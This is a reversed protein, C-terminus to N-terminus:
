RLRIATFNGQDQISPDHALCAHSNTYTDIHGQTGRFDGSCAPCNDQVTKIAKSANASDVMLVQDSCALAGPSSRPNPSVAIATPTTQNFESLCAGDVKPVLYYANTGNPLASDPLDCADNVAWTKLIEGNANVGTGNINVQSMFTPNLYETKWTCTNGSYSYAVVAPSTSPGCQAEYTTNYTSFRYDGLVNFSLPLNLSLDDWVAVFSGYQGIPLANRQVSDTFSTGAQANAHSPLSVSQGAGNIMSSLNATKTQGSLSVKLTGAMLDLTVNIGPPDSSRSWNVTGSNGGEGSGLFGSSGNGPSIAVQAVSCGSITVNETAQTSTIPYGCADYPPSTATLTFFGPGNMQGQITGSFSGCGAEYTTVSGVVSFGEQNLSYTNHLSTNDTWVGSIDNCNKVSGSVVSPPIPIPAPTPNFDPPVSGSTVETSLIFNAVQNAAINSFSGSNPTFTSNSRTPTVTYSGGAAVGFSYSGNADTTTAGATAGSLTITVGPLPSAGASVQGSVSYIQMLDLDYWGTGDFVLENTHQRTDEYYIHSSNDASVFYSSLGTGNAALASLGSAATVDQNTWGQGDFFLQYVHQNEGVYYVHSSVDAAVFYSTDGDGTAALAGNSIATLDQTVWEQGTFFLQYVHQNQGIYYVHSTESVDVFYSTIGTGSAAPVGNALATVDQDFWQVGNFFLQQVHQNADIYFVHSTFGNEVFFSTLASGNAALAIAGSAATLDQNTWGQGDFFLQHVHQDTGVYYVHSSSDAAVFYSTLGSGTAALVNLGSAATLDQNTWGRGDFFLQYIHQDVGIYFLHSTENSDVFYSTLASGSAAVVSTGSAGSLDQNSWTQGDFFLQGVHQNAGVYYLHHSQDDSVFYSTLGQAQVYSACCFGLLLLSLSM